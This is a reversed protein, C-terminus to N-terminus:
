IKGTIEKLQEQNCDRKPLPERAGMTRGIPTTVGWLFILADGKIAVWEM